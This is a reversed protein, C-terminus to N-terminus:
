RSTKKRTLYYFRLIGLKSMVYKILFRKSKTSLYASKYYSSADMKMLTMVDALESKIFANLEPDTKMLEAYKSQFFEWIDQIKSYNYSTISDNQLYVDVLPESIACFTYENAARVTWDFDQMRKVNPDFQCTNFVERKAIITPTCVMFRSHLEKKTIIGDKLVPYVGNGRKFDIKNVASICIDTKYRKIADLQKYLKNQRWEDDSDHFSIFEGQSHRIGTNRAACAGMNKEHKIVVLRKDNIEELVGLTNDTSCDDVVICEIDSFSQNLVSNVSRLITQARNYTPIVVSVM